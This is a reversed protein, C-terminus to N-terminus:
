STEKGQFELREVWWSSGEFLATVVKEFIEFVVRM